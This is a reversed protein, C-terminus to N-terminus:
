DLTPESMVNTRTNFNNAREAKMKDKIEQPIEDHKVYVDEFNEQNTELYINRYIPRGDKTLYFDFTKSPIKKPEQDVLNGSEDYRKRMPEFGERVILKCPMGIKAAFDDDGVKLGFKEIFQISVQIWTVREELNEGMFSAGQLFFATQNSDVPREVSCRLELQKIEPNRTDKIEAIRIKQSSM